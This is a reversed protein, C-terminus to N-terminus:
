VYLGFSSMMFLTGFGLLISSVAGILIEVVLYSKETGRMQYVFFGAMVTFGAFVLITGLTPYTSTAIPSSYPIQMQIPPFLLQSSDYSTSSYPFTSEIMRENSLM